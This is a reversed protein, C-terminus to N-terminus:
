VAARDGVGLAGEIVEQLEIGRKIREFEGGAEDALVFDGDDGSGGESHLVATEQSDSISGERGVGDLFSNGPEDPSKLGDQSVM